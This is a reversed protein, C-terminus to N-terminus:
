YGQYFGNLKESFDGLDLKNYDTEIIVKKHLLIKHWQQFTKEFIPAHATLTQTETNYDFVKLNKAYELYEKQIVPDAFYDAQSQFGASERANFMSDAQGHLRGGLVGNNPLFANHDHNGSLTTINAGKRRLENIYKVMVWDNGNRDSLVDGVLKFERNGGTWEVRSLIGSLEKMKDPNTYNGNSNGNETILYMTDLDAQSLYAMESLVLNEILKKIDGHLDGITIEQANKMKEIPDIDSLEGNNSKGQEFTTIRYKSAVKAELYKAVEERQELTIKLEAKKQAGGVGVVQSIVQDVVETNINELPKEITPIKPSSNLKQKLEVVKVKGAEVVRKWSDIALKSLRNRPKSQNASLQKQADALDKEAYNLDTQIEEVTEAQNQVVEPILPITPGSNQPKTLPKLTPLIQELYNIKTQEDAVAVELNKIQKKTIPTQRQNQLKAIEIQYANIRDLPQNLESGIDEIADPATASSEPTVVPLAVPHNFTNNLQTVKNQHYVNKAQEFAASTLDYQSLIVNNPDVSNRYIEGKIGGVWADFDDYELGHDISAQNSQEMSQSPKVAMEFEEENQDSLSEINNVKRSNKIKSASRISGLAGAASGLGLAAVGAKIVGASMTATKATGLFSLFGYTGFTGTGGLVGTGITGYSTATAALGGFTTLGLVSPILCTVAAAGLGLGALLFLALKAKEKGSLKSKELTNKIEEIQSPEIEGNGSNTKLEQLITDADLADEEDLEPEVVEKNKPTLIQKVNDRLTAFKKSWSKKPQTQETSNIVHPHTSEFDLESDEVRSQTELKYKYMSLKKIKPMIILKDIM